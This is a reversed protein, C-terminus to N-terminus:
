ICGWFAYNGISTVSNPISVSTLNYCEYFAFYGISTVSFTRGGNTVSSPITINGTYKTNGSTLEVTNDSLINYYLVGVQFDYASVRQYSLLFSFLFVLTYLRRM